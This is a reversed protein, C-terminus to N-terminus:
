PSSRAHRAEFRLIATGVRTRVSQEGVKERGKGLVGFRHIIRPLSLTSRLILVRIRTGIKTVANNNM